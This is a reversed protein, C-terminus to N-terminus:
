KRILRLYHILDTSALNTIGKSRLLTVIQGRHYTGHNVVHFLTDEVSDEFLDGKLSKYSYKHQLFGDGQSEVFAVLELSSNIFAELLEMRAGSFNVSPMAKVSTGKMRLMWVTEADWIHLLTKAISAFSSKSEEYFLQDDVTCVIEAMRSNAWANYRLHQLITYAM